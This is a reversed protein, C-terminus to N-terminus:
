KYASFPCIEQATKTGIIFIEGDDDYMGDTAGGLRRGRGIPPIQGTSTIVTMTSVIDVPM